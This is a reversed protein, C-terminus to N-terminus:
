RLNIITNNSLTGTFQRSKDLATLNLNNVVDNIIKYKYPLVLLYFYNGYIILTGTVQM